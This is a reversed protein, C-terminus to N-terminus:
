QAPFATRRLHPCSVSSAHPLTRPVPRLQRTGGRHAQSTVAPTYLQLRASDPAPVAGHTPCGPSRFGNSDQRLVRPVHHLRDDSVARCLGGWGALNRTVRDRVHARTLGLRAFSKEFLPRNEDMTLRHIGFNTAPKRSM